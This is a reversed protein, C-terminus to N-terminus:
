SQDAIAALRKSALAAEPADKYKEIVIRYQERAQDMRKLQEFARGAEFLARASWEPYAYVDAVALLAAVARDYKAQAFWTEGIQFQARAATPGNHTEVVKEYWARADDYKQLNELAWGLGFQAQFLFKHKDFKQVFQEYTRASGAFDGAQAQTEGLKLYALSGLEAPPNGEVSKRFHEIAEPLKNLRALNVGAQYNAWGALDDTARNALFEKFMAAAKAPENMREYCAGLRYIAVAVTRQDAKKDDIVRELLKAADAFKEQQFLIEALEARAAPALRSEPFEDLLRLYTQQAPEARKMAAQSWALDYLVDDTRTTADNALAELRDIAEEYKQLKVMSAALLQKAKIAYGGSAHDKLYTEFVKVAEDTRNAERLAVAQHFLADAALGHKPHKARLDAFRKAAPEFRRADLDIWALLYQTPAALEEPADAPIKALAELAAQAQNQKYKLQGYEFHARMVWPSKVDGRMVDLLTKEANGVDQGRLQALGLKFQAEPKDEKANAAYRALVNASERYKGTQLLADGYLLVARGMEPDQTVQKLAVLNRLLESAGEFDGAFYASQGTRLAFRVKEGDNIASETLEEFIKRADGFRQLSFLNEAVLERTARALSGQEADLGKVIELSREHQRLKHLCFAQRYKAERIQNSQRYQKQYAEYAAVADAYKRMGMLCDAQDLSLQTMSVPPPSLKALEDLVQKAQEYKKEVIDCQALWYRATAARAPDNKVVGGLTERAAALNRSAWQTLGLQLRAAPAQPSQAHKTLIENLMRTADEYRAGKYLAVALSFLGEAQRQAPASRLMANYQEVAGNLNGMAEHCQGLLLTSDLEFRSNPYREKLEQISKISEEYEGIGHLGLALFYTAEARRGSDPYLRLFDASADVSEKRKGLMYLAQARNISATEAAPTGPFNKLLADFAVIARAPNRASLHSHGLVLLAQDQEKFAPDKVVAELQEAAEAFKGQKYHCISLAYRATTAQPHDAHEKLFQAYQEGALEYLQRQFLGNAAALKKTAADVEQARTATPAVALLLVVVSVMGHVWSRM